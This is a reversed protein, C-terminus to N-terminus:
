LEVNAATAAGPEACPLPEMCPLKVACPLAEMCPLKVACPLTVSPPPPPPAIRPRFIWAMNMNQSMRLKVSIVSTSSSSTSANTFSMARTTCPSTAAPPPAGFLFMPSANKNVHFSGSGVWQLDANCGGRARRRDAAEMANKPACLPPLPLAPIRLLPPPPFLLLIPIRAWVAVRLPVAVAAAAATATAVAAARAGGHEGASGCPDEDIPFIIAVDVQKLPSPPPPQM